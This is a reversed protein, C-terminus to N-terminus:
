KIVDEKQQYIALIEIATETISYYIYYHDWVLLFVNEKSTNMGM